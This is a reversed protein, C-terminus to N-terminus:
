KPPSHFGRWIGDSADKRDLWHADLIPSHHGPAMLAGAQAVRVVADLPGLQQLRHLHPTTRARPGNLPSNPPPDQQPTPLTPLQMGKFM